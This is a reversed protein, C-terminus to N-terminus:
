SVLCCGGGAGGGGSKKYEHMGWQEYQYFAMERKFYESSTWDWADWKEQDEKTLKKMGATNFTKMKGEEKANVEKKPIYPAISNGVELADFDINHKSEFFEHEKLDRLGSPGCGLRHNVDRTLLGSLFQVTERSGILEKKAWV